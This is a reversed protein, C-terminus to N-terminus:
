KGVKRIAILHSQEFSKGAKLDKVMEELHRKSHHPAHLRMNIKDADSLESIDVGNVTEM